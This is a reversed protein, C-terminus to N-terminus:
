SATNRKPTATMTLGGDRAGTRTIAAELYDRMAETVHVIAQLRLIDNTDTAKVAALGLLADMRVTTLAEALLDNALLTKAEEARHILEAENM